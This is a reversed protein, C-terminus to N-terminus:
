TCFLHLADSERRRQGTGLRLPTSDASFLLAQLSITARTLTAPTLLNSTPVEPQDICYCNRIRNSMCYQLATAVQVDILHSPGVCATAEREALTDAIVLTEQDPWSMLSLPELTIGVNHLVPRRSTQM